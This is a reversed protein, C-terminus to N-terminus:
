NINSIMVRQQQCVNTGNNLLLYNEDWSKNILNNDDIFVTTGITTLAQRHVRVPSSHVNSLPPIFLELILLPLSADFFTPFWQGLVYYTYNNKAIKVITESLSQFFEDINYQPNRYVIGIIIKQRKGLIELWINECGHIKFQLDRRQLYKLTNKIYAGVGGAQTQSNENIFNYGPLTAIISTEKIRTESLAIIDPPKSCPTVIEELKDM